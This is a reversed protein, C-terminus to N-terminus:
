KINDIIYQTAEEASMDKTITREGDLGLYDQYKWWARMDEEGFDNHNTKTSHRKLTEEFPINIYYCDVRGSFDEALRKLMSSYKKNSLIGELIVTADLSDGYMALHYILNIAPNGAKDEVNLMHIRVQDQSILVTGEGMKKQVQRAITSKGSGSNGRIIILRSM